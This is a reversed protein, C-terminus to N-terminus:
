GSQGGSLGSGDPRPTQRGVGELIVIRRLSSNGVCVSIRKQSNGSGHWPLRWAHTCRPMPLASLQPFRLSPSRRSADRLREIGARIDPQGYLWSRSIGGRRAVGEFSM